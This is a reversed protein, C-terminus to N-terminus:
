LCYVSRSNSANNFFIEKAKFDVPNFFCVGHDFVMWLIDNKDITMDLINNSIISNKDM